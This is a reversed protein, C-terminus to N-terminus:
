VGCLGAEAPDPGDGAASHRRGGRDVGVDGLAVVVGPLIIEFCTGDPGTSVLRVDAGLHGALSKCIALGLGFGKSRDREHNNVQYFEDFLHPVNQPPIGIGTDAVRVSVSGELALLEVTIGGHRTYKIANDILNSVIRVLKQRDTRVRADCDGQYRLYIGKQETGPAFRRVLQQLMPELAVVEVANQEEGGMKAFDLLRTVLDGAAVANEKIMNVSELDAEDRISMKLLHANLLVNHLPARLDHSLANLFFSKQRAQQEKQQALQKQDEIDACAGLWLVADGHPLPTAKVIFTRYGEAGGLRVEITLPQRAEIAGIWRTLAASREDPHVAELWTRNDGTYQRWHRNAFDVRGKDTATWVMHPLLEAIERYREASQELEDIRALRATVRRFAPMCLVFSWTYFVLALLAADYLRWILWPIDIVYFAATCAASFLVIRRLRRLSLAREARGPLKSHLYWDLAIAVSGIVVLASLALTVAPWLLAEPAGSVTGLSPDSVGSFWNALNM